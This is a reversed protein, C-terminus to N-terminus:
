AHLAIFEECLREVGLGSVILREKSNSLYKQTWDVSGGDILEIRQDPSKAAHIMFGFDSYYGRGRSRGNDIECEVSRFAAEIPSFLMSNISEVPLHRNFDTFSVFMHVESGLFIRIAKLYFSIQLGIAELEFHFNGTDRGASCLAFSSFHCALKPNEYKQARVLRHSAALQVVDASKPNDRLYDRRRVACELALVNTSDSVVENNRSTSIAWNQDVSAVVSNTGLPSVPSLSIPEFQHPLQSFAIQEWTALKSPPVASPRMFRSSEYQKLVDRPHLKGARLRYVELMLSQLDTPSLRDVLVSVLGEIGAEGEIRSIIDMM